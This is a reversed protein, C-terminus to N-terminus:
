AFRRNLRDIEALIEPCREFWEGTLRHEAFQKHYAREQPQGGACTTLITLREHHSTQLEKCRAEPNIAMGIKIPGSESGIFYVLSPHAVKDQEIREIRQREIAREEKLAQEHGETRLRRAFSLADDWRNHMARPQNRACALFYSYGITLLEWAPSDVDVKKNLAGPLGSPPLPMGGLGDVQFYELVQSLLWRVQAESKENLPGPYDASRDLQPENYRKRASPGDLDAWENGGDESDCQDQVTGNGRFSPRFHRM